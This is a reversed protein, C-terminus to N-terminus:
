AGAGEIPRTPKADATNAINIECEAITTAVHDAVPKEIANQNMQRPPHNYLCCLYMIWYSYTHYGLDLYMVHFLITIDIETPRAEMVGKRIMESSIRAMCVQMSYLEREIRDKDMAALTATIEASEVRTKLRQIEERDRVRDQKGQSLRAKVTEVRAQLALVEDEVRITAADAIDSDSSSESLSPPSIHPSGVPPAVVNPIDEEVDIDEEADVTPDVRPFHFVHDPSLPEAM